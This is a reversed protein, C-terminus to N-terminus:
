EQLEEGQVMADQPHLEAVPAARRELLIVPRGSTRELHGQRLDEGVECTGM